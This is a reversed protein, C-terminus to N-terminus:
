NQAPPGQTQRRSRSQGGFHPLLGRAAGAVAKNEGDGREARSAVAQHKVALAQEFPAAGHQWWQWAWAGATGVGALSLLASLAKRRGRAPGAAVSAEPVDGRWRLLAAHVADMAQMVVREVTKISVGHRQALFIARRREPLAWLAHEVAAVAERLVHARAVDGSAAAAPLQDPHADAVFREEGRRAHRQWNAALHAAVTYLYAREDRPAEIGVSVGRELNAAEREEHEALRVWADHVLDQATDACGTRRTLFRLLGQYHTSFQAWCREPSRPM